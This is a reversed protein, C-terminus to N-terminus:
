RELVYSGPANELPLHTVSGMAPPAGLGGSRESLWASWDMWWSGDHKTANERWAESSEFRAARREARWIADFLDRIDHGSPDDITVLFVYLFEGADDLFAVPLSTLNMSRRDDLVRALARSRFLM